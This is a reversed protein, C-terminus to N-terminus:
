DLAVLTLTHAQLVSLSRAHVKDNFRTTIVAPQPQHVQEESEHEVAEREKHSEVDSCVFVYLHMYM